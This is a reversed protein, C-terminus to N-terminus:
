RLVELSDVGNGCGTDILSAVRVAEEATGGLHLTALAADRGSGAAWFDDEIYIPFPTREYARLGDPGACVMIAWNDGSRQSEPFKAPDAGDIFWALIQAGMAADGTYAVADDGVRFLKTVTFAVGNNVARKDAALVKGDWAIVTM